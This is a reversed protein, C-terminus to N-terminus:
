ISHYGMVSPTRSFIWRLLRRRSFFERRDSRAMIFVRRDCYDNRASISAAFISPALAWDSRWPGGITVNAAPLKTISSGRPTEARASYLLYANGKRTGERLSRRGSSVDISKVKRPRQAYERSARQFGERSSTKYFDINILTSVVTM